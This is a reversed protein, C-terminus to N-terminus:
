LARGHNYQGNSKEEVYKTFGLAGDSLKLFASHLVNRGMKDEVVIDASARLFCEEADIKMTQRRCDRMRGVVCTNDVTDRSHRPRRHTGNVMGVLLIGSVSRPIPLPLVSWCEHKARRGM